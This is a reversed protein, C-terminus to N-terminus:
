SRTQFPTRVAVETRGRPFALAPWSLLGWRRLAPPCGLFAGVGAQLGQASLGMRARQAQRSHHGGHRCKLAHPGRRGLEPLQLCGRLHTWIHEPGCRKGGHVSSGWPCRALPSPCTAPGPAPQAESSAPEQSADQGPACGRSGSYPGPANPVSLVWMGGLERLVFCCAGLMNEVWRAQSKLAARLHACVVCRSADGPERGADLSRQAQTHESGGWGARGASSSGCEWGGPPKEGTGAQLSAEPM